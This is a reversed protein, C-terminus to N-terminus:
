AGEAVVVNCTVVILMGQLRARHLSHLTRVGENRATGSRPQCLSSECGGETAEEWV